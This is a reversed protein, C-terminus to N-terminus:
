SSISTQKSEVCRNLSTTSGIASASVDEAATAMQIRGKLSTKTLVNGPRAAWVARASSTISYLAIKSCQM